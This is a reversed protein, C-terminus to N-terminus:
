HAHFSDERNPPISSPPLVFEAVAWAVGEQENSPAVVAARRIVKPPANGMAVSLYALDFMPLDVPNDGIAMVERNPIGLRDLVFQLATGKDSGAPFIALSEPRGDQSYFLDMRCADSIQSRCFESLGAVAEPDFAMIRVPAATIGAANTELITRNPNVQGVQQGPRRKMYTMTGVTTLLEWGSRDAYDAIALAADRPIVASHWMPGDPSELVQAGCMCIVPDQLGLQECYVRTSLPERATALVVRVGQNAACQLMRAGQPALTKKGILLTGDLDVAILSIKM